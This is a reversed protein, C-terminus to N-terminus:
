GSAEFAKLSFNEPVAAQGYSTTSSRMSPSTMNMKTRVDPGTPVKEPGRRYTHRRLIVPPGLAVARATLAASGSSALSGASMNM